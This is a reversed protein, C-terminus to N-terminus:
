LAFVVTQLFQVAIKSRVLIIQHPLAPYIPQSVCFLNAIIADPKGTIFPLTPLNWSDLCSDFCFIHISHILLIPVFGRLIGTVTFPSNARSSQLEGIQLLPQDRYM